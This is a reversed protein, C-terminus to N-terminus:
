HVQPMLGFDPVHTVSVWAHNMGHADHLACQTNDDCSPISYSIILVSDEDWACWM